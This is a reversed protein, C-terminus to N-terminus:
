HDYTLYTRIYFGPDSDLHYAEVTNSLGDFDDQIGPKAFVKNQRRFNNM